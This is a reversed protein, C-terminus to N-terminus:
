GSYPGVPATGSEGPRPAPARVGSLPRTSPALLGLVWAPRIAVLIGWAGLLGHQFIWHFLLPAGVPADRLAPEFVENVLGGLGQFLPIGPVGIGWTIGGLLLLARLPIWGRVTRAFAAQWLEPALAMALAVGGLVWHEVVWHYVLAGNIESAPTAAAELFFAFIWTIAAIVLGLRLLIAGGVRPRSAPRLVMRESPGEMQRELHLLCVGMILIQFLALPWSQSILESPSSGVLVGVVGVAATPGACALCCCAGLLGWGTVVPTMGAPAFAAGTRRSMVLVAATAALALGVGLALLVMVVVPWFPMVLAVHPTIVFLVPTLYLSGVQNPDTLIYVVTQVNSGATVIVLMGGILMSVLIYGVASAAWIGRYRGRRTMARLRPLTIGRWFPSGRSSSRDPAATGPSPMVRDLDDSMESLNTGGDPNRLPLM